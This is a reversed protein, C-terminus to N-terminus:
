HPICILLHGCIPYDSNHDVSQSCSIGVSPDASPTSTNKADTKPVKAALKSVWILVMTQAFQPEVASSLAWSYTYGALKCNFVSCLLPNLGTMSVLPVLVCGEFCATDCSLTSCEQPCVSPSSLRECCITIIAEHRVMFLILLHIHQRVLFLQTEYVVSAM